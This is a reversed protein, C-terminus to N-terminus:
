KIKIINKYSNKNSKKNHIAQKSRNSRKKLPVKVKNKILKFNQM